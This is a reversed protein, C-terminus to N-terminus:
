VTVVARGPAVRSLRVGQMLTEIDRKVTRSTVGFQEALHTASTGRDGRRRLEELLAHLRAARNM